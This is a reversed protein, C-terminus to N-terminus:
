LNKLRKYWALSGNLEREHDLIDQETPEGFFEAKGDNLEKPNFIPAFNRSEANEDIAKKLSNILEESQNAIVWAKKIKNFM